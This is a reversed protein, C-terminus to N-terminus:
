GASSCVAHCFSRGHRLSEFSLIEFLREIAGRLREAHLTELEGVVDEELFASEEAAHFTHHDFRFHIGLRRWRGLLRRRPRRLPRAPLSAHATSAPTFATAIPSVPTAIFLAAVPRASTRLTTIIFFEDRDLNWRLASFRRVRFDDASPELADDRECL